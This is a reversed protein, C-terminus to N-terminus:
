VGIAKKFEDLGVKEIVRSLRMKNAWECGEFYKVIRDTLDIAAEKDLGEALVDGLRPRAGCNGGASVTWGEPTGKIGVEKVSPGACGYECGAVGIKFKAPLMYSAFESKTHRPPMNIILRKLSGDIIRDFASAMIKHHRGEIFAPWLHKVFPMFGKAAAEQSHLDELERLLRLIEAKQDPPLNRLQKLQQATLM